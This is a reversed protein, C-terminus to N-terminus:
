GNSKEVKREVVRSSGDPSHVVLSASKRAMTGDAQPHYTPLGHLPAGPAFPDPMAARNEVMAKMMMAMFVQFLPGDKWDEPHRGSQKSASDELGSVFAVASIARGMDETCEIVEARHVLNVELVDCIGDFGYMSTLLEDNQYIWSGLNYLSAKYGRLAEQRLKKIATLQRKTFPLGAKAKREEGNFFTRNLEREANICRAIRRVLILTSRPSLHSLLLLENLRSAHEPKMRM